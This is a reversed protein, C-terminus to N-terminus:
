ASSPMRSQRKDRPSPSTYLLCTSGVIMAGAPPAGVFSFTGGATTTPGFLELLDVSGDDCVTVDVITADVIPLVAINQSCVNTCGNPTTITYDVQFIGPTTSSFTGGTGLGNDVVGTGTFVGGDTNPTLTVVSGDACIPNPTALFCADLSTGDMLTITIESFEDCTSPPFPGCAPFSLTETLRITIIGDAVSAAAQDSFTLAGTAPDITVDVGAVTNWEITWVRGIMGYPDYEPSSITPDIIFDPDGDSFCLENQMEFDPQPEETVQVFATAMLSEDCNNNNSIVTYGIEYCGAEMYNLTSGGLVVADGPGGILSFTGGFTTNETATGNIIFQASLSLSGNPNTACLLQVDDIDPVVPCPLDIEAEAPDMVEEGTEGDGTVVADNPMPQMPMGPCDGDLEVVVVVDFSEGPM